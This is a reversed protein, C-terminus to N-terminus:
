NEAGIQTKKDAFIQTLHIEKESIWALRERGIDNIKQAWRRKWDAFMQTFYDKFNEEM